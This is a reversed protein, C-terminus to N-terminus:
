AQEQEQKPYVYRWYMLASRVYVAIPKPALAQRQKLYEAAQQGARAQQKALREARSMRHGPASRHLDGHRWIAALRPAHRHLAHGARARKQGEDVRLARPVRSSARAGRRRFPIGSRRHLAEVMRARRRGDRGPAPRAGGRAGEPGTLHRHREPQLAQRGVLAQAKILKVPGAVVSPDTVPLIDCDGAQYDAQLVQAPVDQFRFYVEPDLFLGNLRYIKKFESKLSRHLRKYISTFVKLGQDILALTTTAPQNAPVSEGSLIDKVSAVEKVQEIVLGLLQFLVPSPGPFTLPV